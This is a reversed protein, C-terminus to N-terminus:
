SVWLYDYETDYFKAPVSLAIEHSSRYDGKPLRHDQQPNFPYLDDVTIGQVIGVFGVLLWSFRVM